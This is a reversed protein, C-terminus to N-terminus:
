LLYRHILRVVLKQCRVLFVFIAPALTAVNPSNFVAFQLSNQKGSFDPPHEEERAAKKVISLPNLEHVLWSRNGRQHLKNKACFDLLHEEEWENNRVDSLPNFILVM